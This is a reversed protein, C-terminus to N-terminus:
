CSLCSNNYPQYGQVLAQFKMQSLTEFSSEDTFDQTTAVEIDGNVFINQNKWILFKHRTASTMAKIAPLDLYDTHLDLSLDTKNAPRRHIGNSQRYLSEELQIKEGGGNIGMRIRQKWDGYYEFGEVTGDGWFEIIESFCEANDIRIPNSTAYIELASESQNYLGFKYEGTAVSPIDISAQLQTSELCRVGTSQTNINIDPNNKITFGNLDFPPYFWYPFVYASTINNEGNWLKKYPGSSVYVILQEGIRLPPDLIIDTECDFQYSYVYPLEPPQVDPTIDNNRISFYRKGNFLCANAVSGDTPIYNEDFPFWSELSMNPGFTESGTGVYDIGSNSKSRFVYIRCDDQIGDSDDTWQATDYNFTGYFGRELEVTLKIQQNITSDFTNTYIGTLSDYNSNYNSTILSGNIINWLYIQTENILYKGDPGTDTLWGSVIDDADAVSVDLVPVGNLEVQFKKTNIFYGNLFLNFIINSSGDITYTAIINNFSNIYDIISQAFATNPSSTISSFPIILNYTELSNCDYGIIIFDGDSDSFIEYEENTLVISFNENHCDPQKLIGIEQIFNENCDFLGIKASAVGIMNSLEPIVNFQLHDGTKAPMAYYEQEAACPEAFCIQEIDYSINAGTL